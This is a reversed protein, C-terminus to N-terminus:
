DDWDEWGDKNTSRSTLGNSSAIGPPHKDSSRVVAEEDDWDDDWGQEWGDATSGHMEASSIQTQTGMELQQYPVGADTRRRKRIFKCCAWTGGVIVITFILIYVGYIHAANTAYTPFNEINWDLGFSATTRLTCNGHETILIIPLSEMANTSFNLEKNQQKNLVLRNTSTKISSPAVIQVTLNSTGTNQVLISSEKPDTGPYRLCGVLDHVSCNIALGKCVDEQFKDVSGKRDENNKGHDKGDSGPNAKNDQEVPAPPPPPSLNPELSPSPPPPSSSGKSPPSSSSGKPSTGSGGPPPPPVAPKVPNSKGAQPPPPPPSPPDTPKKPDSPPPPRKDPKLDGGKPQIGPPPVWSGKRSDPKEDKVAGDALLNRLRLGASADSLTSVFSILLIAALVGM